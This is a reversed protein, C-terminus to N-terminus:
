WLVYSCRFFLYSLQETIFFVDCHRAFGFRLQLKVEMLLEFTGFYLMIRINHFLAVGDFLYVVYNHPLLVVDIHRLLIVDCHRAFVYRFQLTIEMCLEFMGFYLAIRVSGFFTVIKFLHIVCNHRLLFVDCHHALVFYLQLTMEIRSKFM